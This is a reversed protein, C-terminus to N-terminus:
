GIVTTVTDTVTLQIPVPTGAPCGGPAGVDAGQAQLSGGIISTDCPVPLTLSPVAFLLGIPAGLTCGAPPCLPIATGPGIWIWLLPTGLGGSISYTVTGGIVPSGSPALSAGGCGTPASSFSGGGNPASQVVRVNDVYWGLYGNSQGDVTDFTFRHQWPGPFSFPLSVTAHGMNASGCAAAISQSNALFPTVQVWAGGVPRVELRTQDFALPDIARVYDFQIQLSAGATGAHVPSEIAGSNGNAGVAYNLIGIDGRNYAAAKSGMPPPIVSGAPCASEAHWLTAAPAGALTTETYAGLTGGEFDEEFLACSPGQPLCSGSDYPFYLPFFAGTAGSFGGVRVYYTRGAITPLIVNGACGGSSYPCAVVTLNGCTGEFAEIQALGQIPNFLLTPSPCINFGVSGSCVATFRYWVDNSAASCAWSPASTTAGITAGAYNLGPALEIANACDDNPPVPPFACVPQLTLRFTGTTTGPLSATKGVRISYPTGATLSAVLWSENALFYPTEGCGVSALAGCGGELVQIKTRFSAGGPGSTSLLATGSCTPTYSFWVDDSIPCGPAASTTSGYNAFPGNTGEVVPIAGACEDNSLPPFCTVALAFTGVADQWGGVRLYYATGTAVPVAVESAVGCADDNCALLTLAGCAGSYVELTSDYSANGLGCFSFVATGSCSAVYSFWVDTGATTCTWAPASTTAGANTGPANLGDVVPIAGACEDNPPQGLARGSWGLIGGAIWSALRVLESSRM